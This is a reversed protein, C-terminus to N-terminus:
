ANPRFKIRSVFVKEAWRSEIPRVLERESKREGPGCRRENGGRKSTLINLCCACYRPLWSPAAAELAATPGIPQLSRELPPLKPARPGVYEAGDMGGLTDIWMMKEERELPLRSCICIDSSM